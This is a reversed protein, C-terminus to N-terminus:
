RVVVFKEIADPLKQGTETRAESIRLIYVGSAVFQNSETILDWEDDANLSTHSITKILDGTVTYISLLCIPPLNVFLITNSRTGAFNFDGAGAIFPNPVILIDDTNEAGPEFAKAEIISRNKYL